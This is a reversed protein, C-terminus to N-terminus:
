EVEETKDGDEKDYFRIDQDLGLTRDGLLPKVVINNSTSNRYNKKHSITNEM